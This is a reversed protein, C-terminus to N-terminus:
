PKLNGTLALIFLTAAGVIVIIIFLGALGMLLKLSEFLFRQGGPTGAAAIFLGLSCAILWGNGTGIGGWMALGAIVALVLPVIIQRRAESEKIAITDAYIKRMDEIDSKDGEEIEVAHEAIHAEFADRQAKVDTLSSEMLCKAVFERQQDKTMADM